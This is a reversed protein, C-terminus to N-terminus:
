KSINIKSVVYGAASELDEMSYENQQVNLTVAFREHRGAMQVDDRPPENFTFCYGYNTWRMRFDELSCETHKWNCSILMDKLKHAGEEAYLTANVGKLTDPTLSAEKMRGDLTMLPLRHRPFLTLRSVRLPHSLESELFSERIPNLNCFTVAPFIASTSQEVSIVSKVPHRTYELFHMWSAIIFCTFM